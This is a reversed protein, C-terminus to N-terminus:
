YYHFPYFIASVLHFTPDLIPSIAFLLLMAALIRSFSFGVRTIGTRLATRNGTGVSLSERPMRVYTRTSLLVKSACGTEKNAVDTYSPNLFVM